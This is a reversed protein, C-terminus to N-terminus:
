KHVRGVLQMTHAHPAPNSGQRHHAGKNFANQKKRQFFIPVPIQYFTFVKTLISDCKCGSFETHKESLKLGRQRLLYLRSHDRGGWCRRWCMYAPRIHAWEVIDLISVEGSKPSSHSVGMCPVRSLGRGGWVSHIHTNNRATNNQWNPTPPNNNKKQKNQKQKQKKGDPVSGDMSLAEPFRTKFVLQKEIGPGSSGWNKKSFFM